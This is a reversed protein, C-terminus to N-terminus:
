ACVYLDSLNLEEITSLNCSVSQERYCNFNHYMWSKLWSPGKSGDDVCSLWMRLKRLTESDSCQCCRGGLM